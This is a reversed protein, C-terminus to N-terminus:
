ESVDYALSPDVLQRRTAPNTQFRAALLPGRRDTSTPYAPAAAYRLAFKSNRARTAPSHAVLPSRGNAM